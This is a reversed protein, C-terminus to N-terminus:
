ASLSEAITADCIAECAAVDSGFMARRVSGFLDPDADALEDLLEREATPRMAGLMKVVSTMGVGLGVIPSGYLRRRLAEEVERLIEESPEEMMAIRRIVSSQLEAPLTSLVKGAQDAPLHTLVVAITQPHEDALTAALEDPHMTFLFRFLDGGSATEPTAATSREDTVPAAPPHTARPARATQSAFERLVVERRRRGVQGLAAIEGRVAGAEVSSLQALLTAAQKEPLSSLVIAAKRTGAIAM